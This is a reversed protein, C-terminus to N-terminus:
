DNLPIERLIAGVVNQVEDIGDVFVKATVWDGEDNRGGVEVLYGNDYTYIQFSEDRKKVKAMITDIASM